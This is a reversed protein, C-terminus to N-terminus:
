RNQANPADREFLCLLRQRLETALNKRENLSVPEPGFSLDAEFRRVHLLKWFHPAFVEDGWWCVSQEAAAEPAQTRYTIVAYHVPFSHRAPYELLPTKFPLIRDGKTTTGEPFLVIGRHPGLSAAILDNVRPIDRISGRDIFLTGTVKALHGLVPWSLVESKAVFAADVHCLLLIVDVYSLHNAVLMFPAQPPAGDVHMHMGLCRAVSRAWSRVMRNQWRTRYKRHFFLLGCGSMYALYHVLTTSFLAGLRWLARSM